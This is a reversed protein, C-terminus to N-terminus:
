QSDPRIVSRRSGSPLEARMSDLDAWDNGLAATLLSQPDSDASLRFLVLGVTRLLLKYLREDRTRADAPLGYNAPDLPATSIVTARSDNDYHRVSGAGIDLETVGIVIAGHRRSPPVREDVVDVVGDPWLSRDRIGETPADIPGLTSVVINVERALRAAQAELLAPRIRGVPILYVDADPITVPLDRVDTRERTPMPPLYRSQPPQADPPQQRPVPDRAIARGEEPAAPWPAVAAIGIGVALAVPVLALLPLLVSTSVVRRGVRAGIAIEAAELAAPRAEDGHLDVHRDHEAHWRELERRQESM